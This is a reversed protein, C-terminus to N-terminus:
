KKPQQIHVPKGSQNRYEHSPQPKDHIQKVAQSDQAPTTETAGSKIVTKPAFSCASPVTESKEVEDGKDSHTSSTSHTRQTVRM